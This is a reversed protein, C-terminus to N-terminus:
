AVARERGEPTSRRGAHAEAPAQPRRRRADHDAVPRTGAAAGRAWAHHSGDGDAQRTRQDDASWPPRAQVLDLIAVDDFERQRSPRRLDPQHAAGGPARGSLQLGDAGSLTAIKEAHSTNRSFEQIRRLPSAMSHMYEYKERISLHM